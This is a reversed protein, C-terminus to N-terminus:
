SALLRRYHTVIRDALFSYELLRVCDYKNFLIQVCM